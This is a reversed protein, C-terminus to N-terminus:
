QVVVKQVRNSEAVTMIESKSFGKLDFKGIESCYPTREGKYETLMGEIESFIMKKPLVDDRFMDVDFRRPSQDSHEIAMLECLRQGHEALFSYMQMKWWCEAANHYAQEYQRAVSSVTARLVCLRNELEQLIFRRQKLMEEIDRRDRLMTKAADTTLGNSAQLENILSAKSEEQAAEDSKISEQLASLNSKAEVYEKQPGTEYDSRCKDLISRAAEYKSKAEAFKKKMKLM